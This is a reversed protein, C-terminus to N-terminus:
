ARRKSLVKKLCDRAKIAAEAVDALQSYARELERLVAKDAGKPPRRLVSGDGFHIRFCALFRESSRCMDRAALTHNSTPRPQFHRGARRTVGTRDHIRRRLVYTSWGNEVCRNLVKKREAKGAVRLLYIVHSATIKEEQILRALEEVEDRDMRQAITRCLYLLTVASKHEPLRGPELIDAVREIFRSSHIKVGERTAVDTFTRLGLGAHHWWLIDLPRPKRFLKALRDRERRLPPILEKPLSDIWEDLSASRRNDERRKKKAVALEGSERFLGADM